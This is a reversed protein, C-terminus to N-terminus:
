KIAVGPTGTVTSTYSFSVSAVPCGNVITGSENEEIADPLAPKEM